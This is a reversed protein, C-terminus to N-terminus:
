NIDVDRFSKVHAWIKRAVVKSVTSKHVGMIEGVVRHTKGSRVLRRIKRIKAETLKAKGNREGRAQQESNPRFGSHMHHRSHTSRDTLELNDPANNWMDEDVHHVLEGPRLKRGLKQEMVHRHVDTNIGNIRKRKYSRGDSNMTSRDLHLQCSDYRRGTRQLRVPRGLQAVGGDFTNMEM